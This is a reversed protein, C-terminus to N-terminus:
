REGLRSASSESSLASSTRVVCNRFCSGRCFSAAHARLQHAVVAVGGVLAHLANRSMRSRRRPCTWAPHSAARASATAKRRARGHSRARPPSSSDSIKRSSPCAPVAAVLPTQRSFIMSLVSGRDDGRPAADNGLRTVVLQQKRAAEGDPQLGRGSSCMARTM